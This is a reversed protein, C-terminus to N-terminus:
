KQGIWAPDFEPPMYAINVSGIGQSEVLYWGDKQAKFTYAGLDDGAIVTGESYFRWEDPHWNVSDFMSEDSSM